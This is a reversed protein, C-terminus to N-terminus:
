FTFLDFTHFDIGRLRYAPLKKNVTLLRRELAHIEPNQHLGIAPRGASPQWAPVGIRSTGAAVTGTGTKSSHRHKPTKSFRVAGPSPLIQVPFPGLKPRTRGGWRLLVVDRNKHNKGPFVVAFPENERKKKAPRHVSHSIPRIPFDTRRPPPCPQRRWSHRPEDLFTNGSTLM